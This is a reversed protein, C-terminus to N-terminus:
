ALAPVDDAFRQRVEHRRAKMTAVGKPVVIGFEALLGRIPNPARPHAAVVAARVQHVVLIAQQEATKAPVCHM